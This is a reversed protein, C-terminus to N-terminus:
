SGSIWLAGTRKAPYGSAGYLLKNPLLRNCVARIGAHIAIWMGTGSFQQHIYCGEVRVDISVCLYDVSFTLIM